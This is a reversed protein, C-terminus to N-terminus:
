GIAVTGILCLGLSKLEPFCCYKESHRRSLFNERSKELVSFNLRQKVFSKMVKHTMEPENIKRHTCSLLLPSVFLMILANVKGAPLVPAGAIM